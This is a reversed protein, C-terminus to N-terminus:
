GLFDQKVGSEQLGEIDQYLHGPNMGSVHLLTSSVHLSAAEKELPFIFREPM